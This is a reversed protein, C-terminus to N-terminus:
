SECKRYAMCRRTKNKPQVQRKTMKGERVLSELINYATKYSIGEGAFENATIEDEEQYPVIYESALEQLLQRKTGSTYKM